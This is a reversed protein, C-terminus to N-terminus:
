YNKNTKDDKKYRELSKLKMDNQKKLFCDLNELNENKNWLINNNLNESRQKIHIYDFKHPM